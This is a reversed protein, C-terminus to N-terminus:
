LGYNPPLNLLKTEKQNIDANGYVRPESSFEASLEQEELIIGRLSSPAEQKQPKWKLYLWDHKNKYEATTKKKYENLTDKWIKVYARRIDAPIKTRNEKWCERNRIEANKFSKYADKIKYKMLKTKINLKEHEKMMACTRLINHEVENTGIGSNKLDKLFTIICRTKIKQMSSKITKLMVALIRKPNNNIDKSLDKLQQIVSNSITLKNKPM